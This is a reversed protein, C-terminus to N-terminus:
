QPGRVNPQVQTPERRAARERRQRRWKRLDDGFRGWIFGAAFGMFTLFAWTFAQEISM